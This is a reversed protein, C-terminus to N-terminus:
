AVEVACGASGTETTVSFAAYVLPKLTAPIAQSYPMYQTLLMVISEDDPSIGFFTSPADSWGYERATSVLGGGGSLFARPELFACSGLENTPELGGNSARGYCGAFREHKDKPVYFGTDRMDLPEFINEAFFVDLTRGSVREIVHGLVDTQSEDDSEL